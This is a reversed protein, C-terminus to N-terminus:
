GRRGVFCILCTLQHQLLLCRWFKLSVSTCEENMSQAWWLIAPLEGGNKRGWSSQSIPGYSNTALVLWMVKGLHLPLLALTIHIGMHGSLSSIPYAHANFTESWDYIITNTTHDLEANRILNKSISTKCYTLPVGSWYEQRSFGMSPPAQYAATWPTALLRVRSLSKM